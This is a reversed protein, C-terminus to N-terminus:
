CLQRRPLGCPFSPFFFGRSLLFSIHYSLRTAAIRPPGPALFKQFFNKVFPIFCTYYCHEGPVAHVKYILCRLSFSAGSPIGNLHYSWLVSGNRRTSDIVAPISFSAISFLELFSRDPRSIRTSVMKYLTQDQSLVFAAAHKVCALRVSCGQSLNRWIIPISLQRVPSYRTLFRGRLPPCCNSVVALVAHRM